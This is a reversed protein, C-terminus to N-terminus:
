PCYTMLSLEIWNSLCFYAVTIVTTAFDNNSTKKFECSLRMKCSMHSILCYVKSIPHGEQQGVLLTLASFTFTDVSLYNNFERVSVLVFSSSAQMSLLKKSSRRMTFAVGRTLVAPLTARTTM